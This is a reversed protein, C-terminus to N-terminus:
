AERVGRVGVPGAEGEWRSGTMKGMVSPPETRSLGLRPPQQSGRRGRGTDPHLLAQQGTRRAARDRVATGGALAGHEQQITTTGETAGAAALKARFDM